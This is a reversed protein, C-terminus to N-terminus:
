SDTEKGRLVETVASIEQDGYGLESARRVLDWAPKQWSADVGAERAFDDEASEFHLFLDVTSAADRYDRRDIKDAGDALGAKIMDLWKESFRVMSEATLGRSQLAAAGQYFGMLAPLLMGGVALEYVSALDPEDGLYVTDGGLVRLADLHEDFVRRDGGYYLLTERNGVARPVDKVAGALFRAGCASAWAAAERASSPSGSNLTVLDRAALEATAPELAKVTQGFDTLCTVILPSAAVAEEISRAVQAGAEALPAAKAATRNWVTTPHGAEVFARALASGMSGLGVVTVATVPKESAHFPRSENVM